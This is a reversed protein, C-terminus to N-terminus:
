YLSSFKGILDDGNVRFIGKGRDIEYEVKNDTANKTTIAILNMTVDGTHEAGANVESNPISTVFGTVYVEFAKPTTTGSVSDYLQTCWTIQWKVPKGLEILALAEPVDLPITASLQLNGIRSLDPVDLSGMLNVTTSELEISPLTISVNDVNPNDGRNGEADLKWLACGKIGLSKTVAISM